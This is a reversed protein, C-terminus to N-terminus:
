NLLREMLKAQGIHTPVTLGFSEGDDIVTVSDLTDLNMSNEITPM